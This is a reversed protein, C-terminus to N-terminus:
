EDAYKESLIRERYETTKSSPVSLADAPVYVCIPANLEFPRGPM